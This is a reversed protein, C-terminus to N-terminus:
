DFSVSPQPAGGAEPKKEFEKWLQSAKPGTQGQYKGEYDTSEGVLPSYGIQCLEVGAYVRLPYVVTMELTWTGQFNSEGFGATLHISLGLRAVSSRGEIFPVLNYTETHEITAGLYLEGPYLVMGEPPITLERTPNDKAMDLRENNQCLYVLLKDSLRLNYSNPNLQGPDFPSIALRPQQEETEGDLSIKPKRRDEDSMKLYREQQELAVVIAKGSLM